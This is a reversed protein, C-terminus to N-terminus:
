LHRDSAHEDLHALFDNPLASGAAVRVELQLLPSFAPAWPQQRGRGILWVEEEVATAMLPGFTDQPLQHFAGRQFKGGLTRTSWQRDIGVLDAGEPCCLHDDRAEVKGIDAPEETIRGLHHPVLIEEILALSRDALPSAVESGGDPFTLILRSFSHYPRTSLGIIAGSGPWSM